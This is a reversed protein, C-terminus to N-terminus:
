MLRAILDLAIYMDLLIYGCAISLIIYFVLELKDM